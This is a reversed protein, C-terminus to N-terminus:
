NQINRFRNSIRKKRTKLLNKMYYIQKKTIKIILNILYVSVEKVSKTLNEINNMM